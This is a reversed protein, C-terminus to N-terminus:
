HTRDRSAFRHAALAEYLAGILWGAGTTLVTAGGHWILVHSLDSRPCILHWVADALLGAGMGALAGSWRPRVPLARQVLWFALALGPLGLLEQVSFCVAGRHRVMEAATTAPANMWTWGSAALQTAVGLALALGVRVRGIGSGPVAERLALGALLVGVVAEAAAAGWLLWRGLDAADERLPHLALVLLFLGAAWLAIEMARLAPRPLPRVPQLDVLVQQRLREPVRPTSM